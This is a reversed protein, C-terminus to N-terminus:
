SLDTIAGEILGNLAVFGAFFMSAHMKYSVGRKALYSNVRGNRM